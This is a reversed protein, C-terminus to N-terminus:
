KKGHRNMWKVNSVNNTGNNKICEGIAQLNMKDTVLSQNIDALIKSALSTRCKLHEFVENIFQIKQEYTIINSSAIKLPITQSPVDFLYHWVNIFTQFLIEIYGTKKKIRKVLPIANNILKIFPREEENTRRQEIARREDGIADRLKNTEKGYFGYPTFDYHLDEVMSDLEQKLKYMKTDADRLLEISKSVKAQGQEVLELTVKWIANSDGDTLEQDDLYKITIDLTSNIGVCWEFVPGVCDEYALKADSNLKRIADLKGKAKGQYNLMAKDITTLVEQLPGLKVKLDFESHYKVVVNAFSNIAKHLLDFEEDYINQNNKGQVVILICSFLIVIVSLIAKPRM